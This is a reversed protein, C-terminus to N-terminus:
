EGRSTVVEMQKMIEVKKKEVEEEANNSFARNFDVVDQEQLVEVAAIVDLMEDTIRRENTMDGFHYIRDDIGYQSAECAIRIVSACSESLRSLLYQETKMKYERWEGILADTLVQKFEELSSNM